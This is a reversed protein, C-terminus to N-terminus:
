VVLSIALRQFIEISILKGCSYPNILIRHFITESPYIFLRGFVHMPADCLFYCSYFLLILIRHRLLFHEIKEVVESVNNRCSTRHGSYSVVMLHSRQAVAKDYTEVAIGVGVTRYHTYVLLLNLQHLTATSHSM